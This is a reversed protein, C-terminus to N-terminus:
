PRSRSSRWRRRPRAGARRMGPRWRRRRGPTGACATRNIATSARPATDRTYFPAPSRSRRRSRWAAHRRGAGALHAARAMGRQASRRGRGRLRLRDAGGLRPPSWTRRRRARHPRRPRRPQAAGRDRPRRGARPRPAARGLRRARLRDARGGALAGLATAHHTRAHPRRSGARLRAGVGRGPPRPGRDAHGHGACSKHSRGARPRWASCRAPSRARRGQRSRPAGATECWRGSARGIRGGRSRPGHAAAPERVAVRVGRSRRVVADARRLGERHAPGRRGDEAVGPLLLLTDASAASWGGFLSTVVLGAFLVLPAAMPAAAVRGLALGAFAAAGLALFAM